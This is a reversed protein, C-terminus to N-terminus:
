EEEEAALPAQDYTVLTVELELGEARRAPAVSVQRVYVLEEATEVSNLFRFVQDPEVSNWEATTSRMTVGDDLDFENDRFEQPRGMSARGSKGEIFTSLRVENDALQERLIANRGANAQFEERNGVLLDLADRKEAIDEQIDSFTISVNYGILVCLMTGVSLVMVILLKRERETFREMLTDLKDMLTPKENM